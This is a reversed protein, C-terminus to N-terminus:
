KRLGPIEKGSLTEGLIQYTSEEITTARYTADDVDQVEQIFLQRCKENAADEAEPTGAARAADRAENAAPVRVSAGGTVYAILLVVPICAAGVAVIGLVAVAPNMGSPDVNNVPDAGCYLYPNLTVPDPLEGPYIDRTLFRALEPAYYRNWCWYLGTAADYRYSAYRYPNPVSEHAPLPNGWPDYSYTNVIAGSSDTLAVVDGRANLRYFYTDGGRTMAFLRGSADYAYSALIAGEADTEAIVRASLGDYHYYVTATGETASVRRNFADYAYSVITTGTSADVVATLRGAADYSFRRKGDCTLNGAADYTFGPNTIRCAADVDFSATTSGDVSVSVLNSAADYSYTTVAGGPATWSVLRGAADFAYAGAADSTVKGAADRAYAEAIAGSATTTVISALRGAADYAYATEVGNPLSSGVLAGAADYAFTAAGFGSLALSTLRGAADYAYTIAPAGDSGLATVRGAADYAYTTEFSREGSTDAARTLWGVPNYSFSLTRGAADTVSSLRHAPTYSFSYSEGTSHEARALLGDPTYTRAVSTGNPQESRLLNGAADYTFRWTNGLPDRTEALLDNASYTYRTTAGKPDTVSALNYNPDYTYTWTNSLPDTVGSLKDMVDYSFRTTNGRSDTISTRNGNADYAFRTVGGAPDTATLVRGAADYTFRAVRGMPDTTSLLNGAADYTFASVGGLPDTVSTLRGAADYSYRTTAGALTMESVLGNAFHGYVIEFVPNSVRELYTGTSDYTYTTRVGEANEEWRINNNSLDYAARTTHGAADTASTRNGNADYTFAKRHGNADTVSEVLGASNYTRRTTNGAGDTEATLRFESDFAHVQMYGRNNTITTAGEAYSLTGTNGYGDHQVAVRNEADYTHSVFPTSPHKPSAVAVIRHQDDYTYRTTSGATDTVALLDGSTSYAYTVQRGANDVVKTLLDGTYTFNVFRGGAGEIRTVAGLSNRTYTVTNGYRDTVSLLSGNPAYTNVTGDLYTLTWGGGSRAALKELTGQPPVYGDAGDPSFTKRAGGPYVVLASGDDQQQVYSESDLMWGYGLVTRLQADQHNYTRGVIIAPGVGPLTLDVAQYYFNGTSTNVPEGWRGCPTRGGLVQASKPTAFPSWLWPECQAYTFEVDRPGSVRGWYNRLADIPSGAPAVLNVVGSAGNGYIDNYNIRATVGPGSVYIGAYGNRLIFNRKLSPGGSTIHVGYYRNNSLASDTVSPSGSQVEIGTDCGRIALRSMAPSAAAIRMGSNGCDRITLDHIDPAAGDEIPMVTYRNYADFVWQWGAYRIEANALVSGSSAAGTFGVGGWDKPAPTAVANDTDGGVSDDKISTFVIPADATGRADLTGLVRIGETSSTYGNSLPLFKFVVGPDVVARGGSAITFSGTYPFADFDPLRLAAPNSRSGTLRIADTGNGNGAIGSLVPTAAVNIIMPFGNGAFSLDTLTPEGGSVDVGYSANGSFTCRAVSPAGGSVRLGYYRNNSLASDTVSPSGSQVEIGTDCGRIALRSMAPSAAAIRMGSNGCDRITLDHIDPAAGDEIPMVTYRNYADFVWQWGAYRIEANALVSGSSAAGTFGVGGWDKPAPTAVANDTDGGVSDDKISTFVIPADATGRADLTGLVKIGSTSSTYGNTSPAFKVVTGAVIALRRGEPVIVTQDVVWVANPTWTADASLIGSVRVVRPPLSGTVDFADVNIATSSAKRNKTGTWSITLTHRGLPLDPTSYVAQQYAPSSAYLDVPVPSTGDLSVNMIGNAPGRAALVQAKTGDFTLTCSGTANTMRYSGGSAAADVVDTWAGSFAIRADNSEYRAPTPAQALTGTVDLADINITTGTAKKNKLGTWAIVVTHTGEALVPSTYVAQQYSASASYLDVNVPSGGDIAVTMIGYAPGKSAVVVVATGQFVALASGAANTTRVSGGSASADAVDTWTGAYAILPDSSEYRTTSEAAVAESAWAGRPGKTSFVGRTAAVLRLPPTVAMVAALTTCLVLRSIARSSARGSVSM